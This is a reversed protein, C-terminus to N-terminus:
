AIINGDSASTPMEIELPNVPFKRMVQFQLSGNLGTAETTASFVEFIETRVEDSLPANTRVFLDFKKAEGDTRYLGDLQVPGMQSMRMDVVFRTGDETKGDANEERFRRTFMAGHDIKEGDMVPFLMGTWGNGLGEQGAQKLRGFEKQLRGILEGKGSQELMRQVEPGVFAAANGSFVGGLFWLLRSAFQQPHQTSPLAQQLAEKGEAGHSQVLLGAIESLSTAGRGLLGKAEELTTPLPAASAARAEMNLVELTLQTGKSLLGGGLMLKITGLPTSLVTEGSRETGIVTGTFSPQASLKAATAAQQQPNQSQTGFGSTFSGQPNTSAADPTVRVALVHVSLVDSVKLVSSASTNALGANPNTNPTAAQYAQLGAHALFPVSSTVQPPPLYQQATAAPATVVARLVTGSSINLTTAGQEAAARTGTATSNQTGTQPNPQTVTVLARDTGVGVPARGDVTLIQAQFQPLTSSPLPSNPLPQGEQPRIQSALTNVVIKIVISSGPNLPTETRVAVEGAPTRLVASTSDARVVTANVLADPPLSALAPNPRVNPVSNSNVPPLNAQVPPLNIPEM